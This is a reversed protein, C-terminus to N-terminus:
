EISNMLEPALGAINATLKGLASINSLIIVGNKTKTNLIMSSTYGGTGGNHWEWVEGLDTKILGWALGTSYGDDVTFHKARTLKLERNIDDFHALAFKSLDQVNSLIGGAGMHVAMDWNPVEDGNDNIGKILNEMVQNRNTTSNPMQYKSFIMTQLLDEYSVNGIQELLYGLLGYGLNSYASKTGPEDTLKLKETLYQKLEKEGYDKYPNELSLDPSSLSIPVRPLGSTHTALQRFSIEVDNRLSFDLYKNINDDLGIKKDLVFDALLTATFVKTISGIEYVSESNEITLTSDKENKFGYYNVYGDEIIAISLQAQNPLLGICDSILEQQKQTLHSEETRGMESLNLQGQGSHYIITLFISM